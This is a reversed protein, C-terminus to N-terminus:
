TAHSATEKPHNPDCPGAASPASTTDDARTIWDHFRTTTITATGLRLLASTSPQEETIAAWCTSAVLRQHEVLVDLHFRDPGALAVIRAAPPAALLTTVADAVDVAAIPQVVFRDQTPRRASSSRALETIAEFLQTTRVITHSVSSRELVQEAALRASFHASEGDRGLGASTVLALHGVGANSAAALVSRTEHEVTARVDIGPSTCAADAVDIVVDVGDLDLVPGIQDVAVVEHDCRLLEVAARGVATRGGIVVVSM